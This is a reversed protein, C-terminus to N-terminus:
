KVLMMKKTILTNNAKLSYFYIGSSLNTANFTVKYNGANQHQSVLTAVQSGLVNYVKLEVNSAKPISYKIVTTPNFPNPYNQELAYKNPIGHLNELGAGETSTTIHGRGGGFKSLHVAKFKITDATNETIIGQPIWGQPGIYAFGLDTALMGIGNIFNMFATTKPIAYSIYKGSNMFYHGPYLQGNVYVDIKLDIFLTDGFVQFYEGTNLDLSDLIIDIFLDDNLAGGDIKFVSGVIADYAPQLIAAESPMTYPPVIYGQGENFSGSDVTTTMWIYGYSLTKKYRVKFVFDIKHQAFTDSFFLFAALILIGTFIKKM